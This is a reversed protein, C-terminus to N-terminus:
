KYLAEIRLDDLVLAPQSNGGNWFSVVVQDAGEDPVTADIHVDRRWDHNLVRHMRILRRKVEEGNRRFIILMQAFNDRNNRRADVKAAVTARVWTGPPLDIDVALDPSNQEKDKLCLAGSGSIPGMGCADTSRNDFGEERLLVRRAPSGPFFEPTDLALRDDYNKGYTYLTRWYYAETMQETLFLGGRHAQHTFWLNHYIFLGVVGALVLRGVKVWVPTQGPEKVTDSPVQTRAWFAWEMFAALPFALVVYAQVMTRQGLSGGYWWVSWAFAVYVFLVAHLFLAPAIRPRRWFLPVFGLVGFIMLPTYVLWGAKYSFLGSHIHAKLWDFGQDQYSYVLWDGSVYKWYLLQISGISLTVLMAALLKWKHEAFFRLRLSTARRSRVELMWLLPILASIIETPRTLAALGICAGILLAKGLSPSAYFRHTTLLLLAYLTFVNNHTMAGDIASYNLYNTGFAILLLTLAVVGDRFYSRLLVMLWYLGLFSVVLSGLSIMFQYPLSFGDAPHSASLSAWGHAVLFFPTYMVAQGISYKMVRNGSEHTFVQYPDSTPRYQEIVDELFAVRKVDGYIFIAPLYMYYGSVDYSITAEAGAQQWKPYYGFHVLAILAYCVLLAISSGRM